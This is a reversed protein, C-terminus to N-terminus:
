ARPTAADLQDRPARGLFVSTDGDRRFL